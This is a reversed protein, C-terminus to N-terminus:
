APQATHCLRSQKTRPCAHLLTHARHPSDYVLSSHGDFPRATRVYCLPCTDQADSQQDNGIDLDRLYHPGYALSVRGVVRTEPKAQPYKMHQTEYATIRRMDELPIYINILPRMDDLVQWLVRVAPYFLLRHSQAVAALTARYLRAEQIDTCTPHEYSSMALLVSVVFYNCIESLLEPIHLLRQAM